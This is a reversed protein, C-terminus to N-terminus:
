QDKSQYNDKETLRNWFLLVLKAFPKLEQTLQWRAAERLRSAALRRIFGHAFTGLGLIFRSDLSTSLTTYTVKIVYHLVSFANNELSCSICFLFDM